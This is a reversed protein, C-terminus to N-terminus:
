KEQDIYNIDLMQRDTQKKRSARYLPNDNRRISMDLLGITMPNGTYHEYNMMGENHQVHVKFTWM